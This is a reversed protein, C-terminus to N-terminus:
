FGLKKAFQNGEVPVEPADGNVRRLQIALGNDGMALIKSEGDGLTKGVSMVQDLLGNRAAQFKAFDANKSNTTLHEQTDVPIGLPLSVFKEVSKGDVMEVVIYGINLWLKATVRNQKDGSVGGFNITGPAAAHPANSM